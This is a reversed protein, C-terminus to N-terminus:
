VALWLSTFVGVRFLVRIFVTYDSLICKAMVGHNLVSASNVDYKQATVSHSPHWVSDGTLLGTDGLM